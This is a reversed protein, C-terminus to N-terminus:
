IAGAAQLKPKLEGNKELTMLGPGDNCGGIGEGAIFINPVSTRQTMKALEARLEKGEQDMQDLEYVTYPVDMDTLM